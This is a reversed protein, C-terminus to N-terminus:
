QAQCLSTRLYTYEDIKRREMKQIQDIMCKSTWYGAYLDMARRRWKYGGVVTGSEVNNRWNDQRVGDNGEARYNRYLMWKRVTKETREGGNGGKVLPGTGYMSVGWICNEEVM